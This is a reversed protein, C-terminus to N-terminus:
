MKTLIWMRMVQNVKQSYCNENKKCEISIPKNEKVRLKDCPESSSAIHNISEDCSM